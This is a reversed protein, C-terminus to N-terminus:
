SKSSPDKGFIIVFNTGDVVEVPPAAAKVKVNFTAELKAKTAAKGDGIQYVEVDGYAGEPATDVGSVVFGKDTLKDAQAQGVGSVGSGNLVVVKANERTVPNSSLKQKILAQLPGFQYKGATPQADGDMIPTDGDILSISQIDKDQIDKALSVLTRVESAEFTTRLNDGLSDIIGSVKGFNTLVGVSMAKDRVAKVIKQQNKERDFNSQEFGYTPAADGRAQALYLAHEADLNVPGNPYDIFHGSPPCRALVQARSVKYDGVGCKWDFNSDMQGRPDRSDITVTIGGVASVLQRMVTYNVNVGYQIDMGVVQQGIFQSTQTLASRDAEVSEGGGGVCSFYVNIKGASGPVCSQGYEVELDRPISIMYANKNKQDVSLIMISDTLNSGQHGPDDDSTGLVLINSRGNADQKLPKNQILGLLNGKFINGGAHLAKYALWGGLIILIILLVIAIRKIIRRRRSQPKKNRRNKKNGSNTPEDISDIGKLSDALDTRAIGLDSRRLTAVPAAKEELKGSQYFRGSNAGAEHSQRTHRDGLQSGPRRPVFGDTTHRPQTM